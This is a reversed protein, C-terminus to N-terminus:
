HKCSTHITTAKGSQQVSPRQKAPSQTPLETGHQGTRRIGTVEKSTQTEAELQNTKTLSPSALLGRRRRSRTGSCAWDFDAPPGRRVATQFWSKAPLYSKASM